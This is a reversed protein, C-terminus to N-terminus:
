VKAAAEENPVEFIASRSVTGIPTGDEEVIV